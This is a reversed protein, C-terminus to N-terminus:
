APPDAHTLRHIIDAQDPFAALLDDRRAMEFDAFDCGPSVTCGLLGFRGGDSLHLGQWVGAPVVVQPQQGALLEPGLITTEPGSGTLQVMTVPDGAYFHFVEDSKIQHFASIDDPGLLYYIATGASRPGPRNVADAPLVLEDRHTERYYGGEPHPQLDLRRIIERVDM